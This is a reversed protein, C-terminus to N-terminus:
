TTAALHDKLNDPHIICAASPTTPSTVHFDLSAACTGLRGNIAQRPRQLHPTTRFYVLVDQSRSIPTRAADSKGLGEPVAQRLLRHAACTSELGPDTPATPRILRQYVGWSAQVVAHRDDSSCGRNPRPTPSCTPGPLTRRARYLGTVRGARRGTIARQIRRRCQDLKDGALPYQRPLPGSRGPRHPVGGAASSVRHFRGTALVM